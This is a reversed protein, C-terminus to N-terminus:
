SKSTYHRFAAGIRGFPGAKGVAVAAVLPLRAEPLGPTTV